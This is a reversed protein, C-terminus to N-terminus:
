RGYFLKWKPMYHPYVEDLTQQEWQQRRELQQHVTGDQGLSFITKKGHGMWTVVIDWSISILISIGREVGLDSILLKMIKLM